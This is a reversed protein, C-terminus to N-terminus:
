PTAVTYIFVNPGILIEGTDLRFTEAAELMAAKLADEGVVRVASQVPGGSLMGRLFTESDSYRAPCDAEGDAIVTLGAESILSALKGPASLEFPGAGPPPEPLTARIAQFLRHLTVKEAPGFLGVVIRGNPTCVRAFERLAALQNEAYQLSNAAFVVDFSSDAFPLSEIDGIQFDGEPVRHRALRLLGEAADLGSVQAGREAAVVSAGGGGCGVDLFRTGPAVSAADLMAHFLPAHQPEQIETWAKASQSWLEGQKQASGM